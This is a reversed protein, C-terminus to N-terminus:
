LENLNQLITNAIKNGEEIFVEKSKDYVKITKSIKKKSVARLISSGILGCGIISISEFM